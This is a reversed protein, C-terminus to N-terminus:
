LTVLPFAPRFVLSVFELEQSRQNPVGASDPCTVRLVSDRLLLLALDDAGIHRLILRVFPYDSHLVCSCCTVL